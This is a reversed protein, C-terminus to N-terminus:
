CTKEFRRTRNRSIAPPPRPPLLRRPRATFRAFGLEGFSVSEPMVGDSIERQVRVLYVKEIWSEFKHVGAHRFFVM